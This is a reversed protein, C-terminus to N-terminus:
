KSELISKIGMLYHEVTQPYFTDVFKLISNKQSQDARAFEPSFHNLVKEKGAFSLKKFDPNQLIDEFTVPPQKQSLLDKFFKDEIKKIEATKRAQEEHAAERISELFNIVTESAQEIDFYRLDEGLFFEVPQWGFNVKNNEQSGQFYRWVQGTQTDLLFLGLTADTIVYRGYNDPAIAPQPSKSAPARQAYLPMTGILTSGLLGIILFMWKEKM